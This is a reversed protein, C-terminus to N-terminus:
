VNAFSPQREPSFRESISSDIKGSALGRLTVYPQMMPDRFRYRPLQKEGSVELIGGREATSFENM